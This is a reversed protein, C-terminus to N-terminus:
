AEELGFNICYDIDLDYEPNIYIIGDGDEICKMTNYIYNDYLSCQMRIPCDKGSCALAVNEM